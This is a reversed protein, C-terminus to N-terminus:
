AEKGIADVKVGVKTCPHFGSIMVQISLYTFAISSAILASCALSVLVM